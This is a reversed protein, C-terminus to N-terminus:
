KATVAGLDRLKFFTKLNHVPAVRNVVEDGGFVLGTNRTPPAETMHFRSHRALLRALPRVPWPREGWFPMQGATQIVGLPYRWEATGNYYGNVAFTKTYTPPVRKWSILPFIMGVSHGALYRGLCGNANGLGQSHKRTRSRRLLSASGVPGACLAVISAHVLQERGLYRLLVGTVRSGDGTTLVQLCDTETLLRVNGSAPAPRLAAIEADM